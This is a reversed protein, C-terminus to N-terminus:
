AWGRKNSTDHAVNPLGFKQYRAVGRGVGIRQTWGISALKLLGLNNEPNPFVQLHKKCFWQLGQRWVGPGYTQRFSGPKFQELRRSPPAKPSVVMIVVMRVTIIVVVM